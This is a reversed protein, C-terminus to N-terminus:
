ERFYRGVRGMSEYTSVPSCLNCESFRHSTGSSTRKLLLRSNHQVHIHFIRLALMSCSLLTQMDSAEMPIFCREYPVNVAGELMMQGAWDEGRKGCSDSFREAYTAITCDVSVVARRCDKKTSQLPNTSQQADLFFADMSACNKMQQEADDQLECAVNALPCSQFRAFADRVEDEDTIMRMYGEKRLDSTTPPLLVTRVAAKSDESNNNCCSSLLYFLMGSKRAAALTAKSHTVFSSSPPISPPTDVQNQLHHDPPLPPPAGWSPHSLCFANVRNCGGQMPPKEVFVFPSDLMSATVRYMQEHVFQMRSPSIGLAFLKEMPVVRVELLKLDHSYLFSLTKM